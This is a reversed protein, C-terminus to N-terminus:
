EQAVGACEAAISTYEGEKLEGLEYDGVAFRHISLVKNGFRGFMRKIQHYRGEVLGVEAVHDDLITLRAPRTTIGEYDFYLGREFAEIYEVTIPQETTVRYRKLLGSGPMSLRRSWQGDNTLLVLGTSNFDLRGVIHLQDKWPQDLLDLITRHHNDRTACVVGPPKHLMLYRAVNAHTVRDDLRVLSFKNVTQAADRALVGDVSIRGQALM